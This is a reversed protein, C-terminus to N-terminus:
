EMKGMNRAGKGKKKREWIGRGVEQKSVKMIREGLDRKRKEGNERGLM